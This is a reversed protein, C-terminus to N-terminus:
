QPHLNSQSFKYLALLDDFSPEPESKNGPRLGDDDGDLGFSWGGVSDRDDVGSGDESDGDVLEHDDVGPEGEDVRRKHESNGRVLQNFRPESVAYYDDSHSNKGQLHKEQLYRCDLDRRNRPTTDESPSYLFDTSLSKPTVRQAARASHAALSQYRPSAHFHYSSRNKPASASGSRPHFIPHQFSVVGQTTMM